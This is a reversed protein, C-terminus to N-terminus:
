YKGNFKKKLLKNIAIKLKIKNFKDIVLYRNKKLYNFIDIQNNATKITIIPLKLFYAENVTVSPTVIAFDSKLMIKAIENSNIQLNIWPKSKCYKRLKTLNKNAKTSVINVKLNPILKIVDLIKININSHDAGGIAIFITKFKNNKKIKRSTKKAQLFEDRLLTYKSGCMLQCNKPVLKKYKKEDASINHNLLIDCYHREYTDDLVLIKLNPNLKKLKKEFDYDIGYHDIIIMNIELKNILNNLEDFDSTKLINIKFDSETIKYNINGALNLTAFDINDLPFQKALVLDRMIHGTGIHSSSDARILINV